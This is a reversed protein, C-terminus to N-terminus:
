EDYAQYETSDSDIDRHSRRRPRRGIAQLLGDLETWNDDNEAFKRHPRSQIHEEFDEFKDQCNECYGPKPDRKKPKPALRSPVSNTRKHRDDKAARSEDIADLRRRGNGMSASRLFSGSDVSLDNQRRSSPDQSVADNKQLVKRQLGMVEKSVGTKAGLTGTTSSVMQSRIASTVGSAQLGSAVPEGALFRAPKACNTSTFANTPNFDLTPPAIIKALGFLETPALVANATRNGAEDMEALTRKGTLPKPRSIQVPPKLKPASEVAANVTAQRTHEKRSPKEPEDDIFPCRGNASARFQPWDGKNKDHVKAYERVMIPRQKEEIDYVYIHPGKFIHMEKTSATPDRDSPGSVREKNLLQLLSGEEVSKTQTGGATRVGFGLAASRYPDPELITNVVKHMKELSWIKKGMERARELIDVNRAVKPRRVVDDGLQIPARRGTSATDFLKRKTNSIDSTRSLLSPNITQPQEYHEQPAANADAAGKYATPAPPITRTTVVHTISISFFKEERAGLAMLQRALKARVDDPVSEFYFVHRPFQAKQNAVWKQITEIERETIKPARSAQQSARDRERERDRETASARQLSAAHAVTRPKVPSRLTTRYTSVNGLMQKKAPPPQGYLEERQASAYSRKQKSFGFSNAAASVHSGRLPSNAVNPNNSLPVRRTSMASFSAPSVSLSVTAM